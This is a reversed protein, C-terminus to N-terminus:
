SPLGDHGYGLIEDETREDIVPLAACRAAIVDLEDALSRGSRQARVRQLRESVAVTVAETLTEGTEAALERTLGDAYPDKINFTM